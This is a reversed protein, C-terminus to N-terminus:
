TRKLSDSTTEFSLNRVFVTADEEPIDDRPQPDAISENEDEEGEDYIIPDDNDSIESAIENESNQPEEEVSDDKEDDETAALRDYQSKGLAWDVVVPRSLIKQGNVSDIAKSADDISEFQVFGFGRAKGDPLQPVNCDVIIGFPEFVKLLHDKKCSFALNRVILRAKKALSAATITPIIQCFIVTSKYTHKDLQKQAKKAEEVSTYVVKACHEDLGNESTTM